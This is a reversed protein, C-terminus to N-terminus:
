VLDPGVAVSEIPRLWLDYSWEPWQIAVTLLQDLLLGFGETSMSALKALWELKVGHSPVVLFICMTSAVVPVANPGLGVAQPQLALLACLTEVATFFAETPELLVLKAVNTAVIRVSQPVESLRAPEAAASVLKMNMYYHKVDSLSKSSEFRPTKSWTGLTAALSPASPRDEPRPHLTATLFTLLVESADCTPLDLLAALKRRRLAADFDTLENLWAIVDSPERMTGWPLGASRAADFVSVGLSWIDAAPEVQWPGGSILMEPPRYSVTYMTNTARRGSVAGPPQKTFREALGFDCFMATGEASLLINAPKIDGHVVACSHLKSLSELLQQTWTLLVEIDSPRTIGIEDLTSLAKEMHLGRLTEVTSDLLMGKLPVGYGLRLALGERLVHCIGEALGRDFVKYAENADGYVTAYAGAGIKRGTIGM